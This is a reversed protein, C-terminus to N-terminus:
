GADRSDLFSNVLGTFEQPQEAFCLHSADEIIALQSGAIHQHMDYLQAPRCEDHRGGVLLAPVGIEGIEALRDM